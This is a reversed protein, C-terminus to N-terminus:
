VEVFGGVYEPYAKRFDNGHGLNTVMPRGAECFPCNKEPFSKMPVEKLYVFHDVGLLGEDLGSRDTIVAVVTRAQSSVLTMAIDRTKEWTSAKTTLDDVWILQHVTEAEPLPPGEDNLYFTKSKDPNTTAKLIRWYMPLDRGSRELYAEVGVKALDAGLTQPGIVVTPENVDFGSQMITAFILRYAVEELIAKNAEDKLTRHNAYGEGHEGSTYRFHLGDFVPVNGAKLLDDTTLNELQM